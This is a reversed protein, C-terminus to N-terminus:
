APKIHVYVNVNPGDKCRVDLSSDWPKELDEVYLGDEEVWELELHKAIAKTIADMAAAENWLEKWADRAISAELGDLVEEVTSTGDVSAFVLAEGVIANAGRELDNPLSQSISCEFETPCEYVTITGCVETTMTTGENDVQEACTSGASCSGVRVWGDLTREHGEMFSNNLVSRYAMGSEYLERGADALIRKADDCNEAETWNEGPCAPWAEKVEAETAYGHGDKSWGIHYAVVAPGNEAWKDWAAEDTFKCGEEAYPPTEILSPTANDM